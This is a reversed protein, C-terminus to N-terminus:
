TRCVRNVFLTKNQISLLNDSPPFLLSHSSSNPNMREKHIETKTKYGLGLNKRKM